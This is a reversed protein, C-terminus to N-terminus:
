AQYVYQHESIFGREVLGPLMTRLRVTETSRDAGLMGHQNEIIRTFGYGDMVAIGDELMACEDILMFPDLGDVASGFEWHVQGIRPDTLRRIVTPWLPSVDGLDRPNQCGLELLLHAVDVTATVSEIGRDRYRDVLDFMRKLSDRAIGNEITLKVHSQKDASFVREYATFNRANQYLHPEHVLYYVEREGSARELLSHVTGTYHDDTIDCMALSLLSVKLRNILSQAEYEEAAGLHGHIGGLFATKGDGERTMRAISAMMRALGAAEIRFDRLGVEYYFDYTQDLEGLGGLVGSSLNLETQQGM